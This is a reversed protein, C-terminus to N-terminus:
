IKENSVEVSKFAENFYDEGTAFDTRDEYKSSFYANNGDEWAKVILKQEHQGAEYFFKGVFMKQEHSLYPFVMRKLYDSSLENTNM